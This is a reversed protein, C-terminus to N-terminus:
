NVTMLEIQVYIVCNTAIKYIIDYKIKDSRRYYKDYNQTISAVVRLWSVNYLVLRGYRATSHSIISVVDFGDYYLWIM